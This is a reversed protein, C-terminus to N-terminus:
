VHLAWWDSCDIYEQIDLSKVPNQPVENTM